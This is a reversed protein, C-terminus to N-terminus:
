TEKRGCDAVEPQQGILGPHSTSHKKFVSTGPQNVWLVPLWGIASPEAVRQSSPQRQHHHGRQRPQEVNADRPQPSHV